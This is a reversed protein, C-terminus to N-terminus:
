PTSRGIAAQRRRPPVKGPRRHGVTHASRAATAPRPACASACRRTRSASTKRGSRRPTRTATTSRARAGQRGRPLGRHDARVGGAAIRRPPRRLVPHAYLPRHQGPFQAHFESRAQPARSSSACELRAPCPPLHPLIDCSGPQQPICRIASRESCDTAHRADIQGPQHAQAPAGDQSLQDGDHHDMVPHVDRQRQDGSSASIAQLRRAVGHHQPPAAPRGTCSHISGAIARSTTRRVPRSKKVPPGNLGNLKRYRTCMASAATTSRAASSRPAPPATAPRSRRATRAGRGRVSAPSGPGALVRMCMRMCRCPMHTANPTAAANM